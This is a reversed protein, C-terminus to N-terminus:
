RAGTLKTYGSYPAINKRKREETKYKKMYKGINKIKWKNKNLIKNLKLKIVM